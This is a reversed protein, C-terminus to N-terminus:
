CGRPNFSYGVKILSCRDKDFYIKGCQWWIEDGLSPMIEAIKAYVACEDNPENHVWLRVVETLKGPFNGAKITMPRIEIIRGGVM